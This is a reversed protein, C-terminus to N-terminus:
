LLKVIFINEDESSEELTAIEKQIEYNKIPIVLFGTNSQITKIYSIMQYFSSKKDIIMKEDHETDPKVDPKVDHKVDQKVDQKGDQKVFVIKNKTQYKIFYGQQIYYRKKTYFDKRSSCNESYLIEENM